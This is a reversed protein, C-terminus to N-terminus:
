LITSSCLPIIVQVLTGPLDVLKRTLNGRITGPADRTYATVWSVPGASLMNGMSGPRRTHCMATIALEQGAILQFLRVSGDRCAEQKTGADPRM